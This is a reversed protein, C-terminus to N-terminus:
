KQGQLSCVHAQCQSACWHIALCMSGTHLGHPARASCCCIPQTPIFDLPGWHPSPKRECRTTLCLVFREKAWHWQLLLQCHKM